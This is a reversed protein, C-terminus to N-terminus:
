SGPGRFAMWEKVMRRAQGQTFQDLCPDDGYSMFNHVPDTGPRKCTDDSENCFFINDGDLQYPTDNVLDGPLACGNQFTHYLGLWHGIEHTATDGENYPAVNGGPMSENLIVLGQRQAPHQDPFTAYGLLNDGLNAVYANLEKQPNIGLAMKAERDDSPDTGPYAWDYWDSNRTRDISKTFFRFPTNAAAPSTTGAYGDNMVQMQQHIRLNTVNGAGADDLIIHWHVAIRIPGRAAVDRATIGMRTLQQHLTRQSARVQAATRSNPDVGQYGQKVREHSGAPCASTASRDPARM